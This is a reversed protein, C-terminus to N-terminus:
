GIESRQIRLWGLVMPLLGWLAVSTGVQVWGQGDLSGDYMPMTTTTLDLWDRVRDLAGVTNVVITVVTPLLFYLVIALPSNLLLMGFAAGVLVTLIQVVVVQGVQAGIL